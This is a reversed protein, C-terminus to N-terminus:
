GHLLGLSTPAFQLGHRCLRVLEDHEGARHLVAAYNEIFQVNVPKSELSRKMLQKASDINGVAAEAVGLFHLAQHNNPNAKIIRQYLKAAGGIDGKNHLTLARDLIQGEDRM